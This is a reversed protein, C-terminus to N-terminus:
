KIDSSTKKFDLITAYRSAYELHIVKLDEIIQTTHAKNGADRENLKVLENVISIIRDELNTVHKGKM